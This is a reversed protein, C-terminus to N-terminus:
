PTTSPTNTQTSDKVIPIGKEAILTITTGTQVMQQPLNSPHPNQIRVVFNLSDEATLNEGEYNVDVNLGALTLKQTADYVTIGEVDELIVPRGGGGNGHVIEITEGKLVKDGKGVEKGKHKLQIVYNDPSPVASFTTKFGLMELRVKAIKKSVRYDGTLDPIEKYEGGQRVITLYIKRNPKVYSPYNESNPKPNQRIVTGKPFDDSYVSDSIIIELQKDDALANVDEISSGIFNPVAIKVGHHTYDNLYQLTFYPILFLALGALILNILFLKGSVFRFFPKLNKRFIYILAIFAVVIGISLFKLM